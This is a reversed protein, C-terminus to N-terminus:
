GSGLDLLHLEIGNGGRKSSESRLDRKEVLENRDSVEQKGSFSHLYRKPTPAYGGLESRGAFEKGGLGAVM